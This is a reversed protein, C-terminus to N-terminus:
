QKILKETHVIKGDTSFIRFLYAGPKLMSVNLTYNFYINRFHMLVRGTGIELIELHLYKYDTNTFNLNILNRFPNPSFKIKQDSNTNSLATTVFYYNASSLSPCFNLSSKVSYNGSETPKYSASEAGTILTNNKYWQINTQVNSVLSGSTNREITINTPCTASVSGSRRFDGQFTGWMPKRAPVITDAFYYTKNVYQKLLYEAYKNAVNQLDYSAMSLKLPSTNNAFGMNINISNPNDFIATYTGKESPLYVMGNVHLINASIPAVDQYKWRLEKNTSLAYFMGNMTAIYIVGYDSISPTSRIASGTNYSWIVAGTTPNIKYFDGKENGIYIFGDADIVPSSKIASSLTINWRLTTTGDANLVFKIFRGGDTGAYIAGSSDVAPSKVVVDGFNLKWKPSSPAEVKSIDFGYLTGAESTFILKRDQTIVASSNIPADCQFSWINKGTRYDYALFNRNSVGLYIRSLLSDITPTVYSLGGLPVASWLAVGKSNFGNLNSGNTIFLSTDPAVSPTTFVKFPVSIEWFTNANRDLITVLHGKIQDFATDATYIINQNLASAGGLIGGKFQKYFSVLKINALSSDKAGENDTVILKLTNSGLKFYYTLTSDTNNVLNDNVLWEYKSIKGDSDRSGSASYSLKVFNYEGVTKIEKDALKVATPALNIRVATANIENSLGSTAGNKEVVISYYYKTKDDLGASDQYTNMNSIVAILKGTTDTITSNSRYIRYNPSEVTSPKTWSIKIKKNGAEVLTLTSNPLGYPNEFAGIDPNSGAPNPRKNNLYDLKNSIISNGNGIAISGNALRFDNNEFSVFGMENANNAYFVKSGTQPNYSKIATDIIVNSLLVKQGSFPNSWKISKDNSIISNFIQNIIISNAGIIGESSNLITCNNTTCIKDPDGVDNGICLKNKNFISNQISFNGYYTKLAQTFGEIYCNEIDAYSKREIQIGAIFNPDNVNGIISFGKLTFKLYPDSFNENAILIATGDLKEKLILTLNPGKTSIISLNKNTVILKEQYTGPQVLISDNNKASIISKSITKYPLQETGLGSNDNGKASDVYWVNTVTLKLTNSYNSTSSNSNISKVWYYYTTNRSFSSDTFSNSLITDRLLIKVTSDTSRYIRYKLGNMGTTDWTLKAISPSNDLTIANPLKVNDPVVSLENSMGSEIGASDIAKIRYYYRTGTTIGSSDTYSKSQIKVTDVIVGSSANDNIPGNSRYIKYKALQSYGFQSWNLKVSNKTNDTYTLIPSPHRYQSEFAGMDPVTRSTNVRAGGAIDKDLLYSSTVGRGIAQSYAKLKFDNNATDNFYPNGGINGSTDLLTNNSSILNTTSMSGREGFFNNKVYVGPGNLNTNGSIDALKNFKSINNMLVGTYTGGYTHFRIGYGDNLVVTNNIFIMSDGGNGGFDIGSTNNKYILNNIVRVKQTGEVHIISHEEYQSNSSCGYITNNTIIGSPSNFSGSSIIYRGKLNYITCSDLIGNGGVGIVGSQGYSGSNRLISKSLKFLKSSSELSIIRLRVNEITLGNIHHNIVGNTTTILNNNGNNDGNIITNKIDNTDNTIFYMSTLLSIKGKLDITEKYTGNKLIITDGQNAGNIASQITLKPSNITGLNADNGNTAVYIIVGTYYNSKGPNKKLEKEEASSSQV